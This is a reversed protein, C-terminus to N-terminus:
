TFTAHNYEASERPGDVTIRLRYRGGIFSLEKYLSPVLFKGHNIHTLSSRNQESGARLQSSAEEPLSADSTSM